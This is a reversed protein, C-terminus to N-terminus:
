SEPNRTKMAVIEGTQEDVTITKLTRQLIVAGTLVTVANRAEDWPRSFGVTVNWYGPGHEVEELGLNSISEGALTARLWTKAREVAENLGVRASEEGDRATPDELANSM